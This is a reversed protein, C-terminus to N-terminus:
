VDTKCNVASLSNRTTKTWMTEFYEKALSLLAKNTSWLLRSKERKVDPFEAISVEKQDYIGLVIYSSSGFFRIECFPDNKKSDLQNVPCEGSPIQVAFRLRVKRSLAKEIKDSFIVSFGSSFRKWPLVVDISENARDIATGIKDIVRGEPVTWSHSGENEPVNAAENRERHSRILKTAEKRIENTEHNRKQFLTKICENIPIARFKSPTSIEREVLGEEELDKIIRYIDTRHVKSNGAIEKITSAGLDALALFVKAQANTLGLHELTAFEEEM